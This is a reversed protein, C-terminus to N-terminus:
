AVLETSQFVDKACTAADRLGAIASLLTDSASVTLTTPFWVRFTAGGDVGAAVVSVSMSGGDTQGPGLEVSCGGAGNAVGLVSPDSSSCQIGGSLQSDAVGARNYVEKM